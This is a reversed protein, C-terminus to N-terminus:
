KPKKIHNTTVNSKDNEVNITPIERTSRIDSSSNM